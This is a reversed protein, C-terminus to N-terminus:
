CDLQTLAPNGTLDLATLRNNHCDLRILATNQALDLSTLRNDRCDLQTLAPNGTLDLATLRNHSCNLGTLEPNQTLDLVSLQNGSCNLGILATNDALDLATLQNYACDLLTLAKNKSLDLATLQSDRCNLKTLATNESLRLSTLPHFAGILERLNKFYEVGELSKIGPTDTPEERGLDIVLVADAEESSIKGDRDTDFNELVYARFGPDPIMGGDWFIPPKANEEGSQGSVPAAPYALVALAIVPLLRNM